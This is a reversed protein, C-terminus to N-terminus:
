PPGAVAAPSLLADVKAAMIFDNVSLGGVSHTLLDIVVRRYSLLIDPHHDEAEAIEAVAKVFNVGEGYTSFKIERTLRHTGVRVMRWGPLDKFYKDEEADSLPPTGAKCPVCHREDLKM